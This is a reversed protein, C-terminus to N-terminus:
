LCNGDDWYKKNLKVKVVAGGRKATQSGLVKSFVHVQMQM